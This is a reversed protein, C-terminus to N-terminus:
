LKVYGVSVMVDRLLISLLNILRVSFQMQCQDVSLAEILFLCILLFEERCCCGVAHQVVSAEFTSCIPSHFKAEDAMNVM